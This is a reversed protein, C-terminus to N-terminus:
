ELNGPLRNSIMTPKGKQLSNKKDIHCFNYDPLQMKSIRIGTLVRKELLPFVDM